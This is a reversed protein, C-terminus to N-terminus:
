EGGKRFNPKTNERYWKAISEYAAAYAAWAAADAAVDAAAYAAWAAAYAAWAAARAAKLEAVTAEGNAFREAVAIADKSRRDTMLHEVRRACYVAFLRLERETLVGPRTAVWILWDPELKDWADRMSSCNQIAWERGERCAGYRDCFEEITMPQDLKNM